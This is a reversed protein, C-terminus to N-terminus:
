PQKDIRRRNKLPFIVSRVRGLIMKESIPGVKRSDVSSPRNDGMVFYGDEDLQIEGFGRMTTRKPFDEQLPEGNIFVQGEEMSIREGPLGIIRKVFIQRRNPYKCIVVDFRRPKGFLGYRLVLMLEHNQLTDLMSRGKVLVFACVFRRLILALIIGATLECALYILIHKM